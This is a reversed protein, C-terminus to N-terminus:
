LRGALGELSESSDKGLAGDVGVGAPGLAERGTVRAGPVLTSGNCSPDEGAIDAEALLVRRYGLKPASENAEKAVARQNAEGGPSAEVCLWGVTPRMGEPSKTM